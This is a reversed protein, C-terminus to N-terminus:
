NLWSSVALASKVSQIQQQLEDLNAKAARLEEDPLAFFESVRPNGVEDLIEPTSLATRMLQDLASAVSEADTIKEDFEVAVFLISKM